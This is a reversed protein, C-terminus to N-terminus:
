HTDYITQPVHMCATPNVKDVLYSKLKGQHTFIMFIDKMLATYNISM